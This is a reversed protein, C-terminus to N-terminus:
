PARVRGPDRPALLPREPGGAAEAEYRRTVQRGLVIIVGTELGLGVVCVLVWVM